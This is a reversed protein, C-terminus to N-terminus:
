RCATRLTSNLDISAAASSQHTLEVDRIPSTRRSRGFGSRPSDGSRGAADGSRIRKRTDAWLLRLWRASIARSRARAVLTATATTEDGSCISAATPWCWGSSITQGNRFRNMGSDIQAFWRQRITCGPGARRGRATTAPSPRRARCPRTPRSPGPPRRAVDVGTVDPRRAREAGAVGALAAEVAVLDAAGRDVGEDLRQGLEVPPPDGRAAAVVVVGRTVPRARGSIFCASRAISQRASPVAVTTRLIWAASPCGPTSSVISPTSTWRKPTWRSRTSRPRGPAIM